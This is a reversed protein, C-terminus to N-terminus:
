GNQGPRGGPEGFMEEVGAERLARAPQQAFGAQHLALGAEIAICPQAPMADLGSSSGAVIVAQHAQEAVLGRCQILQECEPGAVVIAGPQQDRSPASRVRNARSLLSDATGVRGPVLGRPKRKRPQRQEALRLEIMKEP